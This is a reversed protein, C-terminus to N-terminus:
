VDNAIDPPLEVLKRHRTRWESLILSIWKALLLLTVATFIGVASAIVVNTDQDASPAVSNVTFFYKSAVAGAFMLPLSIAALLTSDLMERILVAAVCVACIIITWDYDTLLALAQRIHQIFIDM